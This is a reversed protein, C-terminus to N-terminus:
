TSVEVSSRGKTFVPPNHVTEGNEDFLHIRDTDINVSVDDGPDFQEKGAVQAVVDDVGDIDLYVINFSGVQEFVTVSAQTQGENGFSLSINEPRVGLTSASETEEPADLSFGGTEVSSNTVTCNLFNMSPSGIFGAVFQNEPQSYAVEPSAIQQLRGNNLIAVRDSMTMAEEQDHTVYITTSEIERHLQQLEARMQVRLKADLNSLPEDLLFIKPDRVISRGLAVRQQQGGSLEGPKQDLHDRIGLMEATSEVSKRIEEDTMPTSELAFSMNQRATMHPYLAYDQFVFATGREQPTATTMDEGDINITGSTPTELGAVCRLTTTKGCGSPGVFTVFEGDKITMSVEDVAVLDGFEKTLNQIQLKM